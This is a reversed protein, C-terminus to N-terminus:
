GDLNMVDRYFEAIGGRVQFLRPKIKVRIADSEGLVLRGVMLQQKDLRVYLASHEDISDEIREGLTKRSEAGLARALSRVLRSAEEGTLHYHVSVIDYGFAGELVQQEPESEIGLVDRLKRGIREAEETPHVFYSVETAQIQGKTKV